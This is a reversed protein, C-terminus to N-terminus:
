RIRNGWGGPLCGYGPLAASLDGTACRILPCDPNLTTVVGGDVIM